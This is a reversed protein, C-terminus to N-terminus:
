RVLDAAFSSDDWATPEATGDIQVVFERLFWRRFALPGPPTALALLHTGDRCFRDAEDFLRGLELSAERARPPVRFVVDIRHEGRAHADALARAPASGFQAFRDDLEALLAVLRHPVGDAGGHDNRVMLSFERRLEDQHETAEQHLDVPLGLLVVDVLPAEAGSM